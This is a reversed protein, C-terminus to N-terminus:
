SLVVVPKDAPLDLELLAQAIRGVQVRTDAYGLRHWGGQAEREAIFLADPTTHAWHELWEGICRVHPQLPEAHRLVFAGNGLDERVTRSPALSGVDGFPQVLDIM